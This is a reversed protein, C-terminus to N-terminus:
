RAHRERVEPQSMRFAERCPTSCFRDMQREVAKWRDQCHECLRVKYLERNAFLRALAAVVGSESVKLVAKGQPIELIPGRPKKPVASYHWIGSDSDCVLVPVFTYNSFKVKLAAHLARFRTEVQPVQSGGCKQQRWSDFAVGLDEMLKRVALVKQYSKTGKTKNLWAVIMNADNFAIARNRRKLETQTRPRPAFAHIMSHDHQKNGMALM